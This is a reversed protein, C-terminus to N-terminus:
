KGALRNLRTIYYENQPMFPYNIVILDTVGELQALDPLYLSAKESTNFERPDVVVVKSYHNTLFPM